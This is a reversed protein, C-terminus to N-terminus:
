SAGIWDPVSQGALLEEMSQRPRIVAWREGDVLVQAALPRANYTSSMVAGYAGADLLAVLEGPPLDPMARDKAFIDSSECVPGVVDAAAATATLRAPAVPLIGHWAEYMAPRILDNMAADLVVFRRGRGQKQLVVSTLLLGSPGAIWRGPEIMVPLGLGGLTTAIAGALAEPPPPLEDRYTIGLGGGCDVREIPLNHARIAHVLEAVRAYAARYAAMGSTIQSGIHTAVGIPRIGPMAAMRTYLALADDIAIGFKNEAKGTTIKAHTRADVDPNVRIAVPAKVGLSQAIADIIEVEEISEANLQYIGQELAYRIEAASKGVGSFVTRSAPIGGAMVTMLEGGSVVDAGAGEKALVRLVALSDNAKVAYHVGADLGANKLAEALARYRRRLTGASYVWTPTGAAKAIVHLPVGEVMLGDFAHASLQPRAAILEAFSPDPTEHAVPSPSAM